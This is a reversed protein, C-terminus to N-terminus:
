IIAYPLVTFGARVVKLKCLNFRLLHLCFSNANAVIYCPVVVAVVVLCSCPVSWVRNRRLM